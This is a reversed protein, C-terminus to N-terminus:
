KANKEPQNADYEALADLYAQEGILKRWIIFASQMAGFAGPLLSNQGIAYFNRIPLRGFINYQGTKQRIGYASGFPSLYDRYTLQSASDLIRVRGRIEPKARCAKELLDATKCAKYAQYSEGRRDPGAAWQATEAAFTNEFVTLTQVERGAADKERALMVGAATNAPDDPSMLGDIATKAICSTLSTEIKEGPEREVAGWITFFGCSEEFENVRETFYEGAADGLTALISKPHITFVANRFRISRGTDTVIEHCERRAGPTRPDLRCSAIQTQTLVEIGRDACTRRFCRIIADGGDSFRVLDDDLGFGIRCLNALSLETIPTGCCCVAFSALLLRLEPSYGERDAFDAFCILEEDRSHLDFLMSSDGRNLRFMRTERYIKKQLEYFRDIKEAEGPFLSKYYAAIAANGQPTHFRHGSDALFINKDIPVPKIERAFGLFDFMDGFADGLGTTFHFGTDFPIGDRRFRQMSGGVNPSKEIVKVSAGGRALLMALTMGAVGSGVILFDCDNNM